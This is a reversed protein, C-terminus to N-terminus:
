NAANQKVEPDKEEEHMRTKSEQMAEMREKFGKQIGYKQVIVFNKTKSLPRCEIIRVLDGENAGICTPNHAKLRRRMKEYRAYKSNFRTYDSEVVATKRMKVSVVLADFQRGRVSLSGHFPCNDDECGAQAKPVGLGINKSEM